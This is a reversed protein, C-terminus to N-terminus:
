DLELGEAVLHVSWNCGSHFISFNCAGTVARGTPRNADNVGLWRHVNEVQSFFVPLKRSEGLVEGTYPNVFLIRDRGFTLEIPAGDNSRLIIASPQNNQKALIEAVPLRQQGSNSEDRFERNGWRLIQHEYALLVGTVSMIFIVIGAVVGASLHIWFLIRRLTM